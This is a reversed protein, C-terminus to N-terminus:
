RDSATVPQPGRFGIARKIVNRISRGAEHFPLPEIVYDSWATPEAGFRTKFAALEANTGTEGCDYFLCGALCADEIAVRQLLDNARVPAALSKDMAGLVHSAGRGHLVVIGAVARGEHRALYLHFGSPAAEAMAWVRADPESRQARWRALPLPEHQQRAWREVSLRRLRLFEPILEGTTDHEVTVGSKEAKRVATRTKGTFRETWIRDFDRDLVLLHGRRPVEKVGPLHGVHWAADSLPGPTITTRLVRPHGAVEAVVAAVDTPDVPGDSLLGGLGWGSPLSGQVSFLGGLRRRRLLPLLLRAGSATTYLRSADEYGGVVRVRDFWGPTLFFTSDPNAALLELWVDRPAPSVVSAWSHERVDTSASSIM